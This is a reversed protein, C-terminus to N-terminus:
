YKVPGSPLKRANKIYERQAQAAIRKAKNGYKRLVKGRFKKWLKRYLVMKKWDSDNHDSALKYAILKMRRTADDEKSLRMLTSKNLVQKETLVQAYQSEMLAKRDDDTGRMAEDYIFLELFPKMDIKEVKEEPTSTSENLLQRHGYLSM